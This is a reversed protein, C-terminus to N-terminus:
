LLIFCYIHYFLERQIEGGCSSLLDKLFFLLKCNKEKVKKKM